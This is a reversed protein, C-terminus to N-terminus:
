PFMGLTYRRPTQMTTLSTTPQAGPALFEFNVTSSRLQEKGFLRLAGCCTTDYRWKISDPENYWAEDDNSPVCIPDFHGANVSSANLSPFGVPLIDSVNALSTSSTMPITIAVACAVHTLTGLFVILSTPGNDATPPKM